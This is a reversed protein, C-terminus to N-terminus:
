RGGTACRGARCELEPETVFACDSMRGEERNLEEERQNYRAVARALRTSDTARVSYVLYTWPGGCPKAGFAVARCDQVSECVPEAVLRHVATRLSDLPPAAQSAEDPAPQSAADPGARSAGNPTAAPGCALPGIALLLVAVKTAPRM